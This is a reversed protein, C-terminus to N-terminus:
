LACLPVKVDVITRPHLAADDNPLNAWNIFHGPHRIPLTKVLPHPARQSFALGTCLITTM